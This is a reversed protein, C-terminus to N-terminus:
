HYYRFSIFLIRLNIGKKLTNTRFHVYYCSPHELKNVIINYDLVNDVMGRATMVFIETYVYDCMLTYVLYTFLTYVYTTYM